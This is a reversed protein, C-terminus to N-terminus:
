KDRRPIRKIKSYPKWKGRIKQLAVEIEGMIEEVAGPLFVGMGYCDFCSLTEGVGLRAQGIIKDYEDQEVWRYDNM